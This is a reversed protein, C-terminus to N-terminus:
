LVNIFGEVKPRNQIYDLDGAAEALLEHRKPCGDSQPNQIFVGAFRISVGHQWNGAPNTYRRECRIAGLVHLAPVDRCCEEKALKLHAKTGQGQDTQWKYTNFGNEIAVAYVWTWQLAAATDGEYKLPFLAAAEVKPTVCIGSSPMVDNLGTANTRTAPEGSHLLERTAGSLKLSAERAAYKAYSADRRQFGLDFILGPPSYTCAPSRADGRWRLGTQSAYLKFDAPELELVKSGDPTFRKKM